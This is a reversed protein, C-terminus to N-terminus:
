EGEKDFISNMDTADTWDSCTRIQIRADVGRKREYREMRIASERNVGPYMQGSLYWEGSNKAKYIERWEVNRPNFLSVLRQNIDQLAVCRDRM